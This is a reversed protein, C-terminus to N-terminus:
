REKRHTQHLQTQQRPTCHVCARLEYQWQLPGEPVQGTAGLHNGTLGLVVLGFRAYCLYISCELSLECYNIM